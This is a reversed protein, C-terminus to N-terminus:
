AHEREFSVRLASGRQAGLQRKASGNRVCIELYGFSGLLVGPVEASLEAFTGAPTLKAGCCEVYFRGRENLDAAAVNTVLNGFHDSTVVEGLLDEGQWRPSPLLATPTIAGPFGLADPEVGRSLEAAVPAFVDRGHFTRSPEAVGTRENDIHFARVAQSRALVREFLGNDPGVFWHGSAELMLGARESGVGPDVVALHVSGAPFYGFTEGLWFAGAAVCQPEIHHTLDVLRAAPNRGLIVGKMVGVFPDQLGFDTLLTIVGSAKM